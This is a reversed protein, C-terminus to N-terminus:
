SPPRAGASGGERGVAGWSLGRDRFACSMLPPRELMVLLHVAGAAGTSWRRPGVAM